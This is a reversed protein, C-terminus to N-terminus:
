AAEGLLKARVHAHAAQEQLLLCGQLEERADAVRTQAQALTLRAELLRM